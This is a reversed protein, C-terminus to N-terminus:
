TEVDVCLGDLPSHFLSRYAGGKAIPGCLMLFVGACIIALVLFSLGFVKGYFVIEEATM